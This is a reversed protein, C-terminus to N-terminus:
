LPRRFLRFPTFHVWPHGLAFGRLEEETDVGAQDEELFFVFLGDQVQHAAEGASCAEGVVAEQFPLIPFLELPLVAGEAGEEAEVGAVGVPRYFLGLGDQVRSFLQAL